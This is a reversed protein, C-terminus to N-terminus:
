IYIAAIGKIFTFDKNCNIYSQQNYNYRMNRVITKYKGYKKYLNFYEPITQKINRLKLSVM